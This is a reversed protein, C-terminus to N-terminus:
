HPDNPIPLSLLHSKYWFPSPFRWINRQVRHRRVAHSKSFSFSIFYLIYKDDSVSGFIARFVLNQRVCMDISFFVIVITSIFLHSLFGVLREADRDINIFQFDCKVRCFFVKRFLVQEPLQSDLLPYLLVHLPHRHVSPIFAIQCYIHLFKEAVVTIASSQAIGFSPEFSLTYLLRPNDNSSFHCKPKNTSTDFHCEQM